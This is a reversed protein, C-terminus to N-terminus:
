NILVNANAIGLDSLFSGGFGGVFTSDFTSAADIAYQSPDLNVFDVPLPMLTLTVGRITVGNAVFADFAAVDSIDAPFLAVQISLPDSGFTRVDEPFYPVPPPPVPLLSYSTVVAGVQPHGFEVLGAGNGTFKWGDALTGAGGYESAASGGPVWGADGDDAFVNDQSVSALAQTMEADTDLDTDNFWIIEGPYMGSGILSALGGNVSADRSFVVVVPSGGQNFVKAEFTGITQKSIGGNGGGGGSSGGSGAPVIEYSSGDIALSIDHLDSEARLLDVGVLTSEDTYAGTQARYAEEATELTKEDAGQASVTGQDTIGGVAFVVVATIVGLILIVIVLEM